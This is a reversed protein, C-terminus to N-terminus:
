TTSRMPSYTAAPASWTFRASRAGKSTSASSRNLSASDSGQAPALADPTRIGWWFLDQGDVRRVAAPAFAAALEDVHRDTFDYPESPVLM